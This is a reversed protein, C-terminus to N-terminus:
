VSKIKKWYDRFQNRIIAYELLNNLFISLNKSKSNIEISPNFEGLYVQNNIILSPNNKLIYNYLEKKPAAGLKGVTISCDHFLTVKHNEINIFKEVDIQLASNRNGNSDIGVLIRTKEPANDKNLYATITISIIYIHENKIVKFSRYHNEFQGGGANGFSTLKFGIDEFNKHEIIDFDDILWGDLNILFPIIKKNTDKGIIGSQILNDLEEKILPEIFNNRKLEVFKIEQEKINEGYILEYYTPHNDLIILENKENWSYLKFQNNFVIGAFPVQLVEIYRDLQQYHFDLDTDSVKCEYIIFPDNNNDLVLIDIRDLGKKYHALSKEVQIKELPVKIVELLYELFDQRVLEEPTKYVYKKRIKCYM